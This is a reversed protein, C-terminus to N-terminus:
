FSNNLKFEQASKHKRKRALCAYLCTMYREPSERRAGVVNMKALTPFGKNYSTEQGGLARSIAGVGSM